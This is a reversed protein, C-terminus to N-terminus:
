KSSCVPRFDNANFRNSPSYSERSKHVPMLTGSYNGGRLVRSSGSIPGIPNTAPVATYADFWDWCWEGLNGSM